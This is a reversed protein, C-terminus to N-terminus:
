TPGGTAVAALHDRRPFHLLLGVAALIFLLYMPVGSLFYNVLGFIAAAECLAFALVYATTVYDPRQQEVAQRLLKYKIIFSLTLTAGGLAGFIMSRLKDNEPSYPVAVLRTLAFFIGLAIFQAVWIILLGRHRAAVTAQTATQSM